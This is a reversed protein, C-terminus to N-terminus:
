FLTLGQAQYGQPTMRLTGVARPRISKAKSPEQLQGYEGPRAMVKLDHWGLTVQHAVQLSLSVDDVDPVLEPNANSASFDRRFATMAFDKLVPRLVVGEEVFLSLYDSEGGEAYQPSYGIAKRVGIARTGPALAYNATDIRLSFDSVRISADEEVKDRYLRLLKQRATDVVALVFGVTRGQAPSAEPPLEHFLAVIRQDAHLPHPKSILDVIDGRDDKTGFNIGLAESLIAGWLWRNEPVLVERSRAHRDAEALRRVVGEVPRASRTIGSAKPRNPRYYTLVKGDVEGMHAHNAQCNFDRELDTEDGACEDFGQAWWVELQGDQDQDSVRVIPQETPWHGAFRAPVTVEALDHADLVWLRLAPDNGHRDYASLELLAKAQQPHAWLVLHRVMPQEQVLVQALTRMKQRAQDGGGAALANLSRTLSDAYEPKGREPLTIEVRRFWRVPKSQSAEAALTLPADQQLPIWQSCAARLWDPTAVPVAAPDDPSPRAFCLQGDRSFRSLVLERISVPTTSNLLAVYQGRWATAAPTAGAALWAWDPEGCVPAHGTRLQTLVLEAQLPKGGATLWDGVQECDKTTKVPALKDMVARHLAPSDELEDSVLQWPNHIDFYRFGYDEWRWDVGERAKRHLASIQDLTHSLAEPHWAGPAALQSRLKVRLFGARRHAVDFRIEGDQRLKSYEGMPKAWPPLPADPAVDPELQRLSDALDPDTPAMDSWERLVLVCDDAGQLQCRHTALLARFKRKLVPQARDAFQRMQERNVRVEDLTLNFRNGSGESLCRAFDFSRGGFPGARLHGWTSVSLGLREAFPDDDPRLWLRTPSCSWLAAFAIAEDTWNLFPGHFQPGHAFSADKRRDEAWTDAFWARMKSVVDSPREFNLTKGQGALILGHSRESVTLLLLEPMAYLSDMREPTAASPVFRDAGWDNTKRLARIDGLVAEMEGPALPAMVTAEAAAAAPQAVQALSPMGGLSACLCILPLLLARM